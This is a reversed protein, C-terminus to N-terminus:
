SRGTMGAESCGETTPLAAWPAFSSMAMVSAWRRRVNAMFVARTRHVCASTNPKAACSMSSSSLVTNNKARSPTRRVARRELVSCALLAVCDRTFRAQSTGGRPQTRAAPAHVTNLRPAPLASSCAVTRAKPKAAMTSHKVSGAYTSAAPLRRKSTRTRASPAAMKAFVRVVAPATNPKPRAEEAKATPCSAYAATSTPTYRCQAADSPTRDRKSGRASVASSRVRPFKM